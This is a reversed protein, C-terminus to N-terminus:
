RMELYGSQRGRALGLELRRPAASLLARLGALDAAGLVQNAILARRVGAEVTAADPREGFVAMGLKQHVVPFFTWAFLQM